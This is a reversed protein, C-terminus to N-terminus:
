SLWYRCAINTVTSKRNVNRKIAEREMLEEEDQIRRAATLAKDVKLTVSAQIVPDLVAKGIREATTQNFAGTAIM